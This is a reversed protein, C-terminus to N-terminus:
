GPSCQALGTGTYAVRGHRDRLTVTGEFDAKGAEGATGEGKLDLRLEYTKGTYRSRTRQPLERAGADAAFREVEGGIKVFADAERAVVRTGLSTGPAFNCAAGKIDYREIDPYLLPDPTVEELPPIVENAKEVAAVDQQDRLAREEDSMQQGCAAALLTVAIISRRM